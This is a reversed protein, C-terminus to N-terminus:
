YFDRKDISPCEGLYMFTSFCYIRLIDLEWVGFVHKFFDILNFFFELDLILYVQAGCVTCLVGMMFM